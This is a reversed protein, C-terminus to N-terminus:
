RRKSCNDLQKKVLRKRRWVKDCLTLRCEFYSFLFSQSPVYDMSTSNTDM